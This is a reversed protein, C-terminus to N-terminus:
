QDYRGITVKAPRLVVKGSMYGKQVISLVKNDQEQNDVTVHETPDHISPDFEVGVTNIVSIGYDELVRMLQSYIYEIGTRWSQDVKEWAEKNGFAMDFSDLVPFFDSILGQKLFAIRETRKKEEEAKYNAFSAREKQWGTLYEQSQKKSEQLEARMKKMKSQIGAAERESEEPEFQIDDEIIEENDIPESTNDMEKDTMIIELNCVVCCYKYVNNYRAVICSCNNKSLNKM